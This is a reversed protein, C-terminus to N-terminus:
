SRGSCKVKNRLVPLFRCRTLQAASKYSLTADSGVSFYLTDGKRGHGHARNESPNSHGWLWLPGSYSVKWLHYCIPVSRTRAMPKQQFTWPLHLAIWMIALWNPRHIAESWCTCWKCYIRTKHLLKLMSIWLSSSRWKQWRLPSCRRLNEFGFNFKETLKYWVDLNDLVRIYLEVIDAEVFKLIWVVCM